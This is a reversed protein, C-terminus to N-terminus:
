AAPTGRVSMWPELDNLWAMFPNLVFVTEFWVGQGYCHTLEKYSTPLALGLEREVGKFGVQQGTHRRQTPPPREILRLLFADFPEM